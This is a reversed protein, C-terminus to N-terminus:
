KVNLLTAYKRARADDALLQTKLEKALVIAEAEGKGVLKELLNTLEGTQINRVEIWETQDLIRKEEEKVAIEQYVARPITVKKFVKQILVLNNTKLLVILPSANSVIM